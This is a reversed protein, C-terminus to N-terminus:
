WGYKVSYYLTMVIGSATVMGIFLLVLVDRKFARAFKENDDIVCLRESDRALLTKKM